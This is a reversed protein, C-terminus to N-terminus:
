VYYLICYEHCGLKELLSSLLKGHLQFNYVLSDGNENYSWDEPLISSFGVWYELSCNPFLVPRLSQLTALEARYCTETDSSAPCRTINTFVTHAVTPNNADSEPMLQIVGTDGSIDDVWNGLTYFSENLLLASDSFVQIFATVLLLMFFGRSIYPARRPKTMENM